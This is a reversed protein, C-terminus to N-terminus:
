RGVKEKRVGRRWRRRQKEEEKYEEYQKTDKMEAEGGQIRISVGWRM